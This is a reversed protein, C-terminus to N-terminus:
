GGVPPTPPTPPVVPPTPTPPVPATPADDIATELAGITTELATVASALQSMMKAQNELYAMLEPSLATSTPAPAAPAVPMPAPTALPAIITTTAPAATPAPAPAVPVTPAVSAVVPTPAPAPVSPATPPAAPLPAVPVAAGAATVSTTTTTPTAGDAALYEEIDSVTFLDSTQTKVERVDKAIGYCTSQLSSLKNANQTAKVATYATGGLNLMGIVAQGSPSAVAGWLTAFFAPISMLIGGKMYYKIQVNPYEKGKYM